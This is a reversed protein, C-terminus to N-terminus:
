SQMANWRTSSQTRTGLKAARGQASSQAILVSVWLETKVKASTAGDVTANKAISSVRDTESVRQEAVCMSTGGYM